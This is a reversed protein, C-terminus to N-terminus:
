TERKLVAKMVVGAKMPGIINNYAAGSIEHNELVAGYNTASNVSDVQVYIPTGVVLPWVVHSYDAQYYPGSLTLTLLQGPHIPLATSDIGWTVGQQGLEDWTQNVRVPATDPYIYADVWFEQMVAVDGVNQIVVQLDNVGALVQKVILDPGPVYRRQVIPLYARYGIVTVPTTAVALSVGNTATVTATFAGERTYVHTATVGVTTAGDGFNWLYTTVNGVATATFYVARNVMTPSSNVAQLNTISVDDVTIVVEDPTPDVLGRADTVTLTFTLVTAVGPATFTVQVATPDSLVVVPGGTQQWGYTLPLHGDPDTSVGGTLTVPLTAVVRQDPGADAVPALNVISVPRTATLSSVGNTATVRATYAGAAAYTHSVTAGAATQGDGFDWAYVVNSGSATATFFTTQGLTTPSSNDATLSLIPTDTVTIVVSDSVTGVLGRADTVTLVFTLVAPMGPATFTPQATMTGSLVVVPGGTQSWGYALPLHGDPDSSGRGDLTVGSGVTATQDVGANATPALNTVVAVTTATVFGTGNTATVTATYSGVAAYLHSTTAGSGTQGDGFAWSYVINSGSATATFFTNQGLTTPSSNAAAPDVIPTDTVTIVVSDPTGDALGRADTVTLTFTLVAPTATATFVPQAATVDSLLVAPGGTQSWGYALPLHGDPDSSGRGDLTVGSGVTVAQDPGADAVAALNTITVRTTATVVGAGNTATVTATYSGAAAYLYSATAGSGSQGDGFAWSYVINSGSATATFFTTQGLTTPSSNVATVGTIASDTVTIVVSDPTSDAAGRADTVTLTFTLVAPTGPATFTPQATTAGSLVVAPGGTQSWGYTLPMHGDPDSSGRGDLTVGTGVTATQDPGANAAPALNTITVQTTATVSGAGNTATVIATYNGAATYLHSVTAGTATQGDGFAWSYVINQGVATATFFTNQGLTTPSSNVANLGVIPTDTVTIVVSDPAANVLGEADTVTLAFTLVGPTAPATFTPQATTAGSLVVAAGGTQSWGYTLPLHGDPDSSGRGDLIVATGVAVTQDPGANATPRRNLLTVGAERSNNGPLPDAITSAITATNTFLGPTMAPKLTGTVVIMGGEGPGLNGIQWVYPLGGTATVVRGSYSYGVNMLVAPITDTIASGVAIEPGNNVYSITYTVVEGAYATALTASLSLQVDARLTLSTSDAATNNAPTGDAGNSGDDGVGASNSVQNIGVPMPTGVTVRFVASGGAGGGAVAGVSFLCQSGAQNDPSCSWGSGSYTTNAPVTETLVVGTAGQNGVNAYTLTYVVANGPIVSVGGDSKSLTLDPAAIVPLSGGATNNAPTPDAGNAGDDATGASDVLGDVGAPLLSIVTVAFHASASQGVNLAGVNFSCVTGAAAGDACSWGGSSAGANFASYAPVTATLVVGTAGQNGANTVTLRYTAAAGPLVNVNSSRALTLDPTANLTVSVAGSNNAPVADPGNSGDYGITASNNIQAAGAPVAADVTVAFTISASTGVAVTGLNFLCTTGAAAGNGCSWGSTSAGANFTTHAPVTETIVTNPASQGGAANTYILTFALTGGPTVSAAGAQKSLQLDPFNDVPTTDSSQNNVANSDAGNTGDDGVTATNAISGTGWPFPNALIVAFIRSGNGGAGALAGVTLTCVSGAQNNPACSWGASSAGANFASNAPVTETLVVGTAGRNGTNAFTLTYVVTQGPTGRVGGDSKTLTLDPAANILPTTDSASNDAPTPDNGNTGDDGVQATDAIQSVGAPVPNVVTVAFVATGSGNGGALAGVNRTCVSGAGNGPTCNWGSGSYTTNAPVTETLVVGTANQNGANTYTVTYNVTQGPAAGVGGDSVTVRLDPQAALTTTKGSQNNAPTPDAGSLGDDATSFTNSVSTVAAPVVANVRVAFRVERTEGNGLTGLTFHCVTGAPAGDACDWGFESSIASFQTYAPVTETLVVGAAYQASYNMVRLYYVLDSGPYATAGRDDKTATLDPAITYPTTDTASNNASNLDPISGGITATNTVAEVHAPLPSTGWVGFTIVGNAGAAVAGLNLTCLSGGIGGGSCSWGPNSDMSSFQTYLPVTETVLAYASWQGNNAYTLTYVVVSNVGTITGGGDSKTLSLDANVDLQTITADGAAPTDPDNSLVTTFNSGSVRAQNSVQTGNVADDIRADFTITISQGAPLTFPGVTIPIGPLPLPSALGPQRGGGAKVYTFMPLSSSISPSSSHFVTDMRDPMELRGVDLRGVELRGADARGVDLRGVEARGVDLRGVEARGAEGENWLCISESSQTEAVRRQSERERRLATAPTCSGFPEGTALTAGVNGANALTTAADVAYNKLNITATGENKLLNYGAGGNIGASSNLAIEACISANQYVDVEIGDAGGSYLDEPAAVTNSKVTLNIGGNDSDLAMGADVLIGELDTHRVQNGTVGAILAASRRQSVYIGYQAAGSGATSLDGIVNGAITGRVTNAGPSDAIAVIADSGHRLLTNSLVSFSWNSTSTGGLDIGVNNDNFTSNTVTIYQTSSDHFTTQVGSSRNGSFTSHDILVNAQGSAWGAISLGHNGTSASNPGITSNYITLLDLAGSDVVIQVNNYSAGSILSNSIAATGRLHDLRVNARSGDAPVANSQVRGYYLLFSDVSDGIIGSLHNNKIDMGSLSIRQTSVLEIGNGTKNAITGGSGNATGSGDGTVRLWGTGGTNDMRIGPSNGGDSNITRFTMGDPGVNATFMSLAYSGPNTIVNNPGTVNVTSSNYVSFAGGNLNVGGRFNIVSWNNDSLSISGGNIGNVPGAFTSSGGTKRNIWVSTASAEITGSYTIVASGGSVAFATNSANRLWGGGLDVSGDINLMVNYFGGASSVSDFVADLTGYNFYVATGSSDVTVDRVKLRNFMYGNIGTGSGSLTFGYLENQQDLSLAVGSDPYVIQTKTADASNMTPFLSNGTTSIGLLTALDTRSDQGILKQERLLTFTSNITYPTESQYIFVADGIAPEGYGSGNVAAFAAISPFPNSIEGCSAACSSDDNIFWVLGSLIVTVTASSSGVSNNITYSFSDTLGTVGRPPDYSFSGDANVVYQAGNATVGSAPTATVAPLGADNLFLVGPGMALGVNGAATFVDDAAIPSVRLSGNVLTTNSDLTDSFVVGTAESSGSNQITVTYRLTDGPDARGNSNNDILLADSKDVVLTPAAWILAASLLSLLLVMGLWGGSLLWRKARQLYNM